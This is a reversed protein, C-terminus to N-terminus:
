NALRVLEAPTDVVHDPQASLLRAREHWGWTVAVTLAGAARGELMDGRTDGVYYYAGRGPLERMVGQIKRVKSPDTEAGLIGHLAGVGHRQLSAAVIGALSSTIVVVTHASRLRNLADAMGPFLGVGSARRQLEEGLTLLFPGREADGCGAARLGDYLNTDFLRLFAEREAIADLRHRRCAAIFGDCFADLSDAIVGDYDFMWVANM